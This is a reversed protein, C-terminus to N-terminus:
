VVRSERTGTGICVDLPTVPVEVSGKLADSPLVRCGVLAAAQAAAGMVVVEDANLSALIEAGAFAKQRRADTCM